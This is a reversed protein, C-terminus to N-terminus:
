ENEAVCFRRGQDTDLTRAITEGDVDKVEDATACRYGTRCDGNEECSQMCWAIALREPEPLFEVCVAEDPCTNGECNIVTCYGGPSAVDCLREGQISCDTSSECDDGVEPPCGGLLSAAPVFLM